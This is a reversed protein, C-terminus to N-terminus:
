PAIQVILVCMAKLMSHFILKTLHQCCTPAIKMKLHNGSNIAGGHVFARRGAMSMGHFARPSPSPGIISTTLAAGFRATPGILFLDSM